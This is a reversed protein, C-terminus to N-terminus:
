DRFGMGYERIDSYVPSATEVAPVVMTVQVTKVTNRQGTGNLYEINVSTARNIASTTLMNKRVHEALIDRVESETFEVITKPM